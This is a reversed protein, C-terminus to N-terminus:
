EEHTHEGVGGRTTKHGIALQRAWQAETPRRKSIHCSSKAKRLWPHVEFVVFPAGSIFFTASQIYLIQDVMDKCPIIRKPLEKTRQFFSFLGKKEITIM